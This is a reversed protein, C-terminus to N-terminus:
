IMNLLNQEFYIAAQIVIMDHKLKFPKNEKSHSMRRIIKCIKFIKFLRTM